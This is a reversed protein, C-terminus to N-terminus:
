RNQKVDAFVEDCLNVCYEYSFESDRKVIENQSALEQSYDSLKYTTIRGTGSLMQTVLPTVSYETIGTKGNSAKEITVNAMAGVMRDAVGRGSESTANIFNGLSYYVLTRNGNSSEIWKVPQIVHPHTGIVLDVGLEAFYMAYNIQESNEVHTYETGWHPCVIVFDASEKANRVDEAIKERDLLNVAYPMDSPMPIGNTGYTYNLVAIRIGNVEKVYITNQQESSTNIGIVGIDPHSASWYNMCNTIGRKGKDLAHNTAHLVVDFGANVIADGVEYAGNFAPYGSLGLERGGLIVEQNVLALDASAIENKVNAFLHNYDYSGDEMCGSDSVPTHLLVDGAMVITVKGTARDGTNESPTSEEPQNAGPIEYLSETEGSVTNDPADTGDLGINESERDGSEGSIGANFNDSNRNLSKVGFVSLCVVSVMIFLAAGIIKRRNRGSM